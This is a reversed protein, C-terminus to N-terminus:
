RPWGNVSRLHLEKKAAQALDAIEDAKQWALLPERRNVFEYMEKCAKDIALKIESIDTM